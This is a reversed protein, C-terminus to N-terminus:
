CYVQSFNTHIFHAGFVKHVVRGTGNDFSGALLGQQSACLIQLSLSGPSSLTHPHTDIDFVGRKFKWEHSYDGLGIIIRKSNITLTYSCSGYKAVTVGKVLLNVSLGIASM